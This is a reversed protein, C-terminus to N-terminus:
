AEDIVTQMTEDVVRVIESQKEDVAKRLFPRAQMKRTGREVLHAYPLTSGLYVLVGRGSGQPKRLAGFRGVKRYEPTLVTYGGVHLSDRLDGTRIPVNRKAEKVAVLAGQALGEKFAEDKHVSDVADLKDLVKDLGKVTVDLRM